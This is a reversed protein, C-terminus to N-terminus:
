SASTHPAGDPHPVDARSVRCVITTGRGPRSDVDLAAAILRARHQMIRLGIGGEPRDLAEAQFGKGDDGVRLVVASPSQELAIDIRRANGHRVANSVAEQAIRYLHAGVTTDEVPPGGRAEFTCAVDFLRVASQSLRSLAGELGGQELDVPVLGRALTRAYQDAERMMSALDSVESSLSADPIRRALSAAILSLGTLMQGLGDHLDQGIRRREDETARLVEQELARRDSIDRVLGTFIRQGGVFVESVALEMPFTAGGRRRGSVERGIGIIRREGTELYHALYGDHRSRDPEPMLMSVNRGIVEAPAYGFIREAAANFSEVIGDVGMTIVGDVSTELIARSRADRDALAAHATRLAVLRGALAGLRLLRMEADPATEPVGAVALAGAVGAMGEVSVARVGDPRRALLAGADLAARADALSLGDVGSGAVLPADGDLALVAGRAGLGSQVLAVVDALRAGLEPVTVSGSLRAAAAAFADSDLPGPQGAAGAGPAETPAPAADPRRSDPRGSDPSAPSRPM